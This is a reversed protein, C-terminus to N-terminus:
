GRLYFISFLRSPIVQCAKRYDDYYLLHKGSEKRLLSYHYTLKINKDCELDQLNPLYPIKTINTNKCELDQLNPLYPIETINTDKCHLRKLKPLIPIEKIKSHTCDLIQLNPLIPIEKIKRCSKCNLVTLSEDYNGECIICM